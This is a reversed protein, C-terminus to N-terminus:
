RKVYVVAAVLTMATAVATAIKFRKTLKKIREQAHAQEAENDRQMRLKEENFLTQASKLHDKPVSNELQAELQESLERWEGAQTKAENLKDVLETRLGRLEEIERQADNLKRQTLEKTIRGQQLAQKLASGMVTEGLAEENSTQDNTEFSM